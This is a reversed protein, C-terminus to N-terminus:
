GAFSSLADPVSRVTFHNRVIDLRANRSELLTQSAARIAAEREAAAAQEAARAAAEQASQAEAARQAEAELSRVAQRLEATNSDGSLLALHLATRASQLRTELPLDDTKM